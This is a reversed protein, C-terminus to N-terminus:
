EGKNDQRDKLFPLNNRVGKRIAIIEGLISVAIEHPSYAGIPLGIPAYVRAYDEKTFGEKEFNEYHTLIKKGSGIVGIYEHEKRLVRKFIGEDMKWSRTLIIIITNKDTPIEEATKFEDDTWFKCDMPYNEKNAWEPRSDVINLSFDMYQAMEAIAKGVHGAGFIYMKTKNIVPEIFISIQGGCVAGIGGPAKSLDKNLHVPEGSQIVKLSEDIIQKELLGGGVTGIISGDEMVLIKTGIKRPTGDTANVITAVAAQQQNKVLESIRLYIKEDMIFM